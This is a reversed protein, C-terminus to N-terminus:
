LACVIFSSFREGFLWLFHDEVNRACACVRDARFLGVATDDGAVTGHRGGRRGGVCVSVNVGALWGIYERHNTSFYGTEFPGISLHM